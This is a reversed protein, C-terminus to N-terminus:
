ATVKQITYKTINGTTASYTYVIEFSIPNASDTTDTVTAKQITGDTNYTYDITYNPLVVQAVAGNGDASPTGSIGSPFYLYSVERPGAGGLFLILEPMGNRAKEVINIIQQQLANLFKSPIPNDPVFDIMRQTIEQTTDPDFNWVVPIM